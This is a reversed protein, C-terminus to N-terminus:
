GADPESSSRRRRAGVGTYILYGGMALLALVGSLFSSPQSDTVLVASSPDDPDYHVTVEAGRGYASRRDRGGWDGRRSTYTTGDVTYTYAWDLVQVTERRINEPGADRQIDTESRRVQEYEYTTVEGQVTPWDQSARAQRTDAWAQVGIYAALALFLLGLGLVVLHARSASSPVPM